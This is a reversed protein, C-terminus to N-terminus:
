RRDYVSPRRCLLVLQVVVEQETAATRADTPRPAGHAVAVAAVPFAVLLADLVGQDVLTQKVGGADYTVTQEETTM